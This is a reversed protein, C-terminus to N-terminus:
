RHWPPPRRRARRRKPRHHHERGPQHPRRGEQDRPGQRAVDVARQIRSRRVTRTAVLGPDRDCRSMPATAHPMARTDTSRRALSELLRGREEDANRRQQRDDHDEGHRRPGRCTNGALRDRDAQKDRQQEQAFANQAHHHRRREEIDHGDADTGRHVPGAASEACARRAEAPRRASMGILRSPTVPTVDSSDRRIPRRSACRGRKTAPLEARARRAAANRDRAAREVEPGPKGRGTEVRMSSLEVPVRQTIRTRPPSIRRLPISGRAPSRTRCSSSARGPRTRHRATASSLWM